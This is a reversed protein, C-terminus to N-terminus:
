SEESGFLDIRTFSEHQMRYKQEIEKQEPETMERFCDKIDHKIDVFHKQVEGIDTISMNNKALIELVSRMRYKLYNEEFVSM